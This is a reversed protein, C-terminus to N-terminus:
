LCRQYSWGLSWGQTVESHICILIIEGESGQLSWVKATEKM